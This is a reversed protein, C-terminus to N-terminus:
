AGQGRLHTMVKRKKPQFIDTLAQTAKDPDCTGCVFIDFAAYDIEPWTHITIHSEALIAVGTIGASEGFEHIQISLVTAGCAAAATRLAGEIVDRDTM